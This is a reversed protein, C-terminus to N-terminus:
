PQFGVVFVQLTLQPPPKDAVLRMDGWRLFPMAKELTQVMRVLDFYPGAVTMELGQRTVAPSTQATAVAGVATTPLNGAGSNQVGTAAITSTRILSLKEYRRLFHLLVQELPAGNADSLTLTRIEKDVAEIRANNLALESRTAAEASPASSTTKLEDRLRRLETDQKAFQQTLEAHRAQAPGLWAIDVLATCGVLVTLFLFMRERLSLADIRAAQAKWWDKM